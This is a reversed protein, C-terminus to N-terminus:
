QLYKQMLYLQKEYYDNYINQNVDNDNRKYTRPNYDLDSESHKFHYHNRRSYYNNENDIVNNNDKIMFIYTYFIVAVIFFVVIYKNM